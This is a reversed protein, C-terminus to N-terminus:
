RSKQRTAYADLIGFYAQWQWDDQEIGDAILRAEHFRGLLAEARARVADVQDREYESSLALVTRRSVAYRLAQEADTRRGARAYAEGLQAFPLPRPENNPNDTKLLEAVRAADDLRGIRILHRVLSARVGGRAHSNQMEGILQEAERGRRQRFLEGIVYDLLDTAPYEVTRVMTRVRSLDFRRAFDLRTIIRLMHDRESRRLRGAIEGAKDPDGSAAYAAARVQEYSQRAEEDGDILRPLKGPVDVEGLRVLEEIAEQFTTVGEDTSAPFELIKRLVQRAHESQGFHKWADAVEIRCRIRAAITTDASPLLEDASQLLELSTQRDGVRLAAEAIEAFLPARWASAWNSQKAEAVAEQLVAGARNPEVASMAVALRALEKAREEPSTQAAIRRRIADYQELRLLTITRAVNMEYHEAIGSHVFHGEPNKALITGVGYGATRTYSVGGAVSLVVVIAAAVSFKWARRTRSMAAESKEIYKREADTLDGRRERLWKSAATLLRGSPIGEPSRTLFLRLDQHWLLFERDHNLWERLREWHRILAEHAVEVGDEGSARDSGAVVLRARKDSFALVIKWDEESVDARRVRRRTDTGEEDASSVRVLRMLLRRAAEKQTDSLEDYITEARQTLAGSVGGIAQYAAFTLRSQERRDWLESLAYELLPLNGPENGVDDLIRDVLGTDFTLGAKGAPCVIVDRLEERRMPGLNVLGGPLADSLERALAIAKGYYDSRLTALVCLPANRSAELLARVFERAVSEETLTFLEEFQDVVILLRDTGRTKKLLLEITSTIVGPTALTKALEASKGIRGVAALKPHLLPVLASALALWPYQGPHMVVARWVHRPAQRSRLAPIVGANVVSSKGSGSPGTVTVFRPQDHWGSSQDIRRVVSDIAAQRGFFLSADEERFADLRRYPSTDGPTAADGPRDIARALRGIAEDDLGGRLDVWDLQGLFGGPPAAGELIVPIVPLDGRVRDQLHFSFDIEREQSPGYGSRGVFIAVARSQQLASEVQPRWPKGAFLDSQDIFSRVGRAELRKRVERVARADAHNYSLFLDFGAASDM